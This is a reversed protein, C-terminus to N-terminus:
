INNWQSLASDDIKVSILNSFIKQRIEKLNQQSIELDLNPQAQFFEYTEQSTM